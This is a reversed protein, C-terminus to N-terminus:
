VLSIAFEKLDSSQGKSTSKVKIQLWTDNEDFASLTLPLILYYWKPDFCFFTSEPTIPSINKHLKYLCPHVVYM